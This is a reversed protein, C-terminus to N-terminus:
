QNNDMKQGFLSNQLAHSESCESRTGKGKSSRSSNIATHEQQQIDLSICPYPYGTHTKGMPITPIPIPLMEIVRLFGMGM